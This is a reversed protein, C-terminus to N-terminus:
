LGVESRTSRQTKNTDKEIYGNGTFELTLYERSKSFSTISRIDALHRRAWCFLVLVKGLARLGRAASNLLVREIQTHEM